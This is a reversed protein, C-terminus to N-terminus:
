TSCSFRHFPLSVRFEFMWAEEDNDEAILWEEPEDALAELDTSTLPLLKGILLHLASLIFSPTFVTRTEAWSLIECYNSNPHDSALVPLIEKFLLM